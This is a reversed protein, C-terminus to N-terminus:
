IANKRWTQISIKLNKSSLTLTILFILSFNYDTSLLLIIRVLRHFYVCITYVRSFM